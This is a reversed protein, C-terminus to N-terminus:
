KNLNIIAGLEFFVGSFNYPLKNINENSIKSHDIMLSVDDDNFEKRNWKVSGDQQFGAFNMRSMRGFNMQFGSHATLIINSSAMYHLGMTPGFSGSNDIIHFGIDNDYLKNGNVVLYDKNKAGGSTIGFGGILKSATMGFSISVENSIYTFYDVGLDFQVGYVKGNKANNSLFSNLYPKISISTRINNTIFYGVGITVAYAFYRKKLNYRASITDILYTANQDGDIYRFDVQSDTTKEPTLCFAIKIQFQGKNFMTENQGLILDCYLTM